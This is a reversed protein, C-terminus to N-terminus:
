FQLKFAQVKVSFSKMMLKKWPIQYPNVSLDWLISKSNLKCWLRFCAEWLSKLFTKHIIKQYIKNFLKLSRHLKTKILTFKIFHLTQFFFLIYSLCIYSSTLCRHPLKRGFISTASTKFCYCHRMVSCLFHLKGNLTEETFTVLDAPIQPNPWM